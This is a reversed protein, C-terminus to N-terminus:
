GLEFTSVGYLGQLDLQPPEGTYMRATEFVRTMGLAEALQVASGNIEPVDWYIPGVTPVAQALTALLGLAAAQDEAYLPGVKVGERCRRAVGLGALRGHRRLVRAAGEEPELWVELFSERAAPFFRRDYSLVEEWAVDRPLLLEEGSGLEAPHPLATTAYRVNRYALRFGSRAYAAQMAVVGDLGTLHGHLREMAHQWLAMGIGQGRFEPVVIYLGVFGFGGAYSVASICGVPEGELEAMFFGGPDAAYFARADHLGPNWGEATALQLAFALQRETMPTISLSKLNTM